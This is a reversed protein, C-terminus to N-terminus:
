NIRNLLYIKLALYTAFTSWLLYPIILKTAFASYPMTAYILFLTTIAVIATDLAALDLRKMKFEFFRFAQNTLYNVIWLVIFYNSTAKLGVKYEVIAHSLANLAYLVGWIVGIIKGSPTWVPKKLFQVM